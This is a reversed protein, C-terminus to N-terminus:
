QGLRVEFFRDRVAYNKKVYAAINELPCNIMRQDIRAYAKSDGFRIEMFHSIRSGYRSYSKIKRQGYEVRTIGSPDFSRSGMLSTKVIAASSFEYRRPYCLAPFLLLAIFAFMIVGFIAAAIASIENAAAAAATFVLFVTLIVIFTGACAYVEGTKCTVRLIDEEEENLGTKQRLTEIFDPYGALDRRIAHRGGDTHLVVSDYWRSEYSIGRVASYPIARTKRGNQITVGDESLVVKVSGFRIVLAGFASFAAAFLTAFLLLGIDLNEGSIDAVATIVWALLALAIVVGGAVRLGAPYTYVKNM